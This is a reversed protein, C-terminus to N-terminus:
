FDLSWEGGQFPHSNNVRQPRVLAIELHRIRGSQTPLTVLDRQHRLSLICPNPCISPTSQLGLEPFVAIFGAGMFM